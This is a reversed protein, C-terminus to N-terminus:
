MESAGAMAVAAVIAADAAASNERLAAFVDRATLVDAAAIAFTRRRYQQRLLALQEGGDGSSAVYELVADRPPPEEEAAFLAPGAAAAPAADLLAIEEPYRVLVDTLYESAGFLALAREVAEPHRLVTAYRESSTFASALFRHLNRRVLSSLGTQAVVAYVAPSDGAIRALVQRTAVERGPDALTSELQFDATATRVQ